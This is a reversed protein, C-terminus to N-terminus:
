PRPEAAATPRNPTPGRHNAPCPSLDAFHRWVGTSHDHFAPRHCPANACSATDLGFLLDPRAALKGALAALDADGTAPPTCTPTM